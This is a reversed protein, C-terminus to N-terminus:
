RSFEQQVPQVGPLDQESTPAAAGVAFAQVAMLLIGLSIMWKYLKMLDGKEAIGCSISNYRPFVPLGAAIDNPLGPVFRGTEQHQQEQTLSSALRALLMVALLTVILFPVTTRNALALATGGFVLTLAWFILTVKAPSIKQLMLYHLHLSDAMFPNRGNALRICLVRLTDFIPILLVLVPFLVDVTSSADQTLRVATVALTFGLFLSGTDGMFIRAHPFNYLLFAALAGVFACCIVALIINGALFAAIGMFLFGLLSVGGALGNLGDLLNIANTIGLICIFTFPISFWGLELRGVAGFTDVHHIVVQGGFIVILVAASMVSIKVKWNLSTRDDIMGLGILLCAGAIYASLAGDGNERLLFPLVGCFFAFGGWRPTTKNHLRRGGPMDLCKCATALRIILPTLAVTLLFSILCPIAYKM